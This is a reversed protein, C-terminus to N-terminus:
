RPPLRRNLGDALGAAVLRHDDLNWRFGEVRTGPLTVYRGDRLRACVVAAPRNPALEEVGAVFRAVDCWRLRRRLLLGQGTVGDADLRLGSRAANAALAFVVAAVAAALVAIPEMVRAPATTAAAAAVLALLAGSAVLGTALAGGQLRLRWREGAPSPRVDVRRPLTSM